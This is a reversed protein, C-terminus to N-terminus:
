TKMRCYLPIDPSWPLLCKMNESGHLQIQEFVHTLYEAPKLGNEKATLIISYIIASSTAGAPTNCFLWNKRGIVFPKISREARNNSLEIRGDELFSLLYKKQNIAYQLATGLLSKPLTRDLQQKAWQFFEEVLPKSKEQRLKYLEEASLKKEDSDSEIKFLNNCLEMGIAEPSTKKDTCVTLAENFKRRMHAWCGCLTVGNEELQHYGGWGDTHLYGHFGKLFEKAFKGSRGERYDYLVIPVDCGSTRYLWMYSSTQAPRGPECLVELTTEDAHLVDKTLLEAKM